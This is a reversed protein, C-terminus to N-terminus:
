EAKAPKAPPKAPPKGKATGPKGKAEEMVEPKVGGPYFKFRIKYSYITESGVTEQTIEGMEVDSFDKLGVLQDSLTSITKISRAKGQMEISSGKQVLKTYWAGEPLVEVLANMLKVPVAQQDKLLKIQDVKKSYEEKRLELEQVKERVGKYRELEKQKQEVDAQKSQIQLYLWAWVGIPILLLVVLLAIHPVLNPAGEAAAVSPGASKGGGRKGGKPEALLNIRIM